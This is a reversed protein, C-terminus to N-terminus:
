LSCLDAQNEPVLSIAIASIIGFIAFAIFNIHLPLSMSLLFGGFIPGLMGGIRGVGSAVGLATSRIHAPYYQSLYANVINQAGITAAGAIAVLLSIVITNGGFGLLTLAVAGSLYTPILIKKSGHKDSLQSILLTGIIAGGQLVILFGLSSNLAYGAQIMLKPLWTNLGYVMLLCSFFALWFMVTGLGRKEKFLGVVPVKTEPGKLEVFEDHKNFTLGPNVKSLIARLKEKKGTRIM